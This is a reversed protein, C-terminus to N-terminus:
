FVVPHGTFFFSVFFSITPQRLTAFAGVFPVFFYWVKKLCPPTGTCGARCGRYARKHQLTDCNYTYIALFSSHLNMHELPMYGKKISTTQFASKAHTCSHTHTHTHTRPSVTKKSYSRKLANAFNRFAIILETM